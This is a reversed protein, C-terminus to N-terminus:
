RAALQESFEIKLKDIIPMNAAPFDLGILEDMSVWATQQGEKGWPEGSFRRVTYVDLLVSKDPYDFAVQVFSDAAQIDIGLEEQLERQLAQLPTEQEELKGGPFEWKGGQHLNDPRKALFVRHDKDLIVAAAVHVQKM